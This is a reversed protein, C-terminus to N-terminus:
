CFIQFAQRRKTLTAAFGATRTARLLRSPMARRCRRNDETAARPLLLCCVLGSTLCQQPTPQRTAHAPALLSPLLSCRPLASRGSFVLELGKGQPVTVQGAVTRATGDPFNVSLPQAGARRFAFLIPLIITLNRSAWRLGAQQRRRRGGGGGEETYDKEWWEGAADSMRREEAGPEVCRRRAGEPEASAHHPAFALAPGSSAIASGSWGTCGRKTGWVPGCPTRSACEGELKEARRRRAPERPRPGQFFGARSRPMLFRNTTM